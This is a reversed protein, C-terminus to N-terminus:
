PPRPPHFVTPCPHTPLAHSLEHRTERVATCTMAPDDDQWTKGDWYTWSLGAESPLDSAKSLGISRYGTAFNTQDNTAMWKGDTYRYMYYTTDGAKKLFVPAGHATKESREYVGMYEPRGTSGTLTM